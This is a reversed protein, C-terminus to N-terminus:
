YDFEFQVSGHVRRRSEHVVIFSAWSQNHVWQILAMHVALSRSRISSKMSQSNLERSSISMMNLKYVIFLGNWSKNYYILEAQVTGQARSAWSCTHLLSMISHSSMENSGQHVQYSRRCLEHLEYVIINFCALSKHYNNSRVKYVAMHVAAFILFLSSALM